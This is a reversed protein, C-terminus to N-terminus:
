PRGGPRTKSKGFSFYPTTFASRAKARRNSQSVTDVQAFAKVQMTGTQTHNHFAQPPEGSLIGVVLLAGSVTLSLLTNKMSLAM